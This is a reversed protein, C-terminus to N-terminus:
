NTFFERSELSRRLAGSFRKGGGAEVCLRESFKPQRRLRSAEKWITIHSMYQTKYTSGYASTQSAEKLIAIVFENQKLSLSM